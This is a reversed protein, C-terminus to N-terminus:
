PRGDEFKVALSRRGRKGHFGLREHLVQVAEAMENSGREWLCSDDGCTGDQRKGGGADYM